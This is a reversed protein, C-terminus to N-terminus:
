QRHKLKRNWIRRMAYCVIPLFLVFSGPEPTEFSVPDFTLMWGGAIQGMDLAGDDRVFLSFDQGNLTAGSATFSSLPKNTYPGGPAPISFVDGGGSNSPRFIGTGNNVRPQGFGGSDFSSSSFASKEASSLDGSSGMVTSATDSFQLNVNNLILDGFNDSMLLTQQLNGPGSLLVDIDATATHSVKFLSVSSLSYTLSPNLGSISIKSPYPTATTNDLISILATNTFTQASLPVASAMGAYFCAITSVTLLPRFRM